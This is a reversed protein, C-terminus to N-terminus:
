CAPPLSQGRHLGMRAAVDGEPRRVARRLPQRVAAVADRQTRRPSTAPLTAGWVKDRESRERDEFFEAFGAILDAKTFVIYVPAFVELNETLEQM